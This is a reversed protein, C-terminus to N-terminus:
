LFSRILNQPPPECPLTFHVRTGSGLKSDIWIKGGHATIIGKSIALGLGTGLRATERAQWYRDFVHPLDEPSIGKGHDEIIFHYGDGETMAKLTITSGEPSFKVANGIINALVEIIRLHDCPVQLPPVVGIKQLLINKKIAHHTAAQMGEDLITNMDTSSFELTLNGSQIKAFSLLDKILRKMQKIAREQIQIFQLQEELGQSHLTDKLINAAMEINGLPNNLDHSVIALVDERLQVEAQLKKNAEQIVRAHIIVEAEMKELRAKFDKTIEKQAFNSKQFHVLETVDVARHLIYAIVGDKLVPTNSPSWYREEFVNEPTQIDYKQVAMVDAHGTALVHHLSRKLNRVGDALPDNPNDPFVDFIGKGVISARETMTIRAYTESAAVITFAPADPLVVLYLDPAAEFLTKYDIKM